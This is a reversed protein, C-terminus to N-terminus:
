AQRFLYLILMWAGSLLVGEIIKSLGALEILLFKKVYRLIKNKM